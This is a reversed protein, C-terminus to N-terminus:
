IGADHAFFTFYFLSLREDNRISAIDSFLVAYNRKKVM